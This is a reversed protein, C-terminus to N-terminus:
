HKRRFLVLVTHLINHKKIKVVKFSPLKPMSARLGFGPLGGLSGQTASAGFLQQLASSIPASVMADFSPPM